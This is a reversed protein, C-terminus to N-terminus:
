QRTTLRCRFPILSNIFMNVAAYGRNTFQPEVTSLQIAAVSRNLLTGNQSVPISFPNESTINRAVVKYNTLSNTPYYRLEGLFSETAKSTRVVAYSIRRTMLATIIYSTGKGKDDDEEDDEGSGSITVDTGIATAFNYRRKTGSVISSSVVDLEINHPTINLRSNAAPVYSGSDLVISTDTASANATVPFPGAEYLQMSIGPRSVSEPPTTTTIAAVAQLNNDVLQPISVSGHVNALMQEVGARAQQHASNVATNKAYLTLGTIFVYFIMGGVLLAVASTVMLEVLTYASRSSKPDIKM